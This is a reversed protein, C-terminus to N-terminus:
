GPLSAGVSAGVPGFPCTKTSVGAVVGGPCGVAPSV